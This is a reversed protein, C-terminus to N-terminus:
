PVASNENFGFARQTISLPNLRTVIIMAPTMRAIQRYLASSLPLQWSGLVSSVPLASVFCPQEMFTRGSDGLPGIQKRQFLREPRM